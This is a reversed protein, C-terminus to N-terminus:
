INKEFVLDMEEIHGTGRQVAPIFGVYRWGNKARESIVQKYADNNYKTGGFLNYGSLDNIIREYEYIYM